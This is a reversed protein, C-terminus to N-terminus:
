TVWWSQILWFESVVWMGCGVIERFFIIYTFKFIKVISVWFFLYFGVELYTLNFKDTGSITSGIINEESTLASVVGGFRSILIVLLEVWFKMKLVFQFVHKRVHSISRSASLKLVISSSGIPKNNLFSLSPSPLFPSLFRINSRNPKSSFLLFNSTVVSM